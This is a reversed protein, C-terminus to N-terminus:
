LAVLAKRLWREANLPSQQDIAIYDVFRGLAAFVEPAVILRYKM